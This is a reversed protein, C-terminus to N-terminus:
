QSRDKRPASPQSEGLQAELTKIRQGQMALRERLRAIEASLVAFMEATERRAPDQPRPLDARMADLDLAAGPLAALTDLGSLARTRVDDFSLAERPEAWSPAQTEADLATNVEQMMTTKVWRRAAVHQMGRKIPLLKDALRPNPDADPTKARAPFSQGIAGLFDRYMADDRRLASTFGRVIVADAGFLDIWPRLAQAYDWHIPEMVQEVAADFGPVDFGIKILQNYWSELHSQPARLYCVVRFRLRDRVTDILARLAAEAGPHAGLRMFEESSVLLSQGGKLALAEDFLAQWMERAPAPARFNYLLTEVGAEQYLVHALPSHKALKEHTRAYVLGQRALRDRNAQFFVQLATTGTKFHGIHFIIEPPKKDFFRVM